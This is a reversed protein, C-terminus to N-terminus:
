QKREFTVPLLAPVFGVRFIWKLADLTGTLRTHDENWVLRYSSGPNGGLTLSDLAFTRVTYLSTNVSASLRGFQSTFALRLTGAPLPVAGPHEVTGSLHQDDGFFGEEYSAVYTFSFPNDAPAPKVVLVATEARRMARGATVSGGGAAIGRVLALMPGNQSASVVAPASSTWTVSRGGLTDGFSNLAVASVNASGGVLLTLSTPRVSLSSVACAHYVNELGVRIAARSQPQM